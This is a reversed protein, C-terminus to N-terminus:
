GETWNKPLLITMKHTLIDVVESPGHPTHNTDYLIAQIWSELENSEDLDKVTALTAENISSPRVNRAREFNDIKLLSILAM